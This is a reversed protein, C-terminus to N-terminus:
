LVVLDDLGTNELMWKAKASGKGDGLATINKININIGKSKLWGHIAVAAAASM